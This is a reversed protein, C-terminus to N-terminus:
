IPKGKYLGKGQSKCHTMMPLTPFLVYIVNMKGPLSKTLMDSPNLHTNLYATRWEDKAVCERVFHYAISSSKKKRCTRLFQNIIVFYLHQNM